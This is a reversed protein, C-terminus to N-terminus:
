LFMQLVLSFIGRRFSFSTRRFSVYKTVFKTVDLFCLAGVFHFRRGVFLSMNLSTQGVVDTFGIFICVAHGGVFLFLILSIQEPVLHPM